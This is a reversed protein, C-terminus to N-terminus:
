SPEPDFVRERLAQRRRQDRKRATELASLTAREKKKKSKRERENEGEVEWTNQRIRKGRFHKPQTSQDKKGEKEGGKERM